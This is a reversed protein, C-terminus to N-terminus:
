YYGSNGHYTLRPPYFLQRTGPRDPYATTYYNRQYSVPRSQTPVYQQKYTPNRNRQQIVQIRHQAELGAGTTYAYHPYNGGAYVGYRLSMYSPYAGTYGSSSIVLPPYSARAEAQTIFLLSALIICISLQKM